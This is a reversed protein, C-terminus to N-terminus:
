SALRYGQPAFSQPLDGNPDFDAATILEPDIDRVADIETQSAYVLFQTVGFQTYEPVEYNQTIFVFNGAEQYKSPIIRTGAVARMNSFVPIGNISMSVSICGNTTRIGIDWQNGDLVVSFNQNPIAQIPVIQM